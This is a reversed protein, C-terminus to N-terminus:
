VQDADALVTRSLSQDTRQAFEVRICLVVNMLRMHAFNYWKFIQDIRQLCREFVLTKIRVIM